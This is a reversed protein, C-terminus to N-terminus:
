IERFNEPIDMKGTVKQPNKTKQKRDRALKVLDFIYNGHNAMSDAVMQTINNHNKGDPPFRLNLIYYICWVNLPLTKM